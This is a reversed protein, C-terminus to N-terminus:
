WRDREDREGEVEWGETLCRHLGKKGLLMPSCGEGGWVWVCATEEGKLWWVLLGGCDADVPKYVKANDEMYVGEVIEWAVGTRILSM